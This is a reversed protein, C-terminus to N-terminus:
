KKDKNDKDKNPKVYNITIGKHEIEQKEPAYAGLIKALQDLSKLAVGPRDTKTAKLIDELEKLIRKRNMLIQKDMKNEYEINKKQIFYVVYPHKLLLHGHKRNTRKNRPYVKKYAKTANGSKMFELSFREYKKM